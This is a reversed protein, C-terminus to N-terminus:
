EVQATLTVVAMPPVTVVVWDGAVAVSASGALATDRQADTVHLATRTPAFPLRLRLLRPLPGHNAHVLVLGDGDAKLAAISDPDDVAVLRDGPRIFASFQRMAWYKRTVFYPNGPPPNASLDIKILGWNADLKQAPSMDEVAQWFVWAAPELRKLDSLVRDALALAPRMDGFDQPFNAPSLDVESMWLRKGSARAIDRVGTQGDTGYSHVNLQGIAARTQDDYAMWNTIFTQANTEDMAAVVTALGRERLAQAAARIMRAQADPSWHAGEQHNAAFWYPTNPENVPSLTRFRVGHRLQLGEVARALYDAFAGEWGPRLNNDMGSEAGSVRGSVTMFYPPSNSFAELILHDAAVRDRIADLWWRQGPDASWDWHDPNDPQWWDKGRVGDPRRWFGPVDAGPRLYPVTEPANGGGINYRAINFALGDGGFLLDALATKVPAPMRGTVNAFWILATGWGEFAPQPHQWQPALDIAVAASAPQPGAAQGAGTLAGALLALGALWPRRLFDMIAAM